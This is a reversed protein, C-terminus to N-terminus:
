SDKNHKKCHCPHCIAQLNSPTDFTGWVPYKIHHVESVPYTKCEECIGKARRIAVSRAIKYLPQARYADYSQYHQRM